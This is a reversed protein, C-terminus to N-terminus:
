VEYVPKELDEPLLVDFAQPNNELVSFVTKLSNPILQRNDKCLDKNFELHQDQALHMFCVSCLRSISCDSCYKRRIDLYEKNLRNVKNMDLKENVNGISCMQSVKECVFFDGEPSVAIKSGPTCALKNKPMRGRSRWIINILGMFLYLVGVSSVSNDKTIKEIFDKQLINVTKEFTDPEETIIGQEHARDCYDYYTTNYKGIQNYIISYPYFIKDNQNFFEVIKCMDTYTDFCCSFSIGKVINRKKKEEQLRYVKDLVLDFTGKGNPFIRNRDNNSKFGDLSFTIVFDNVIFFDIMEDKLLTGNTTIFYQANYNKEKCYEVVQKILKYQLLPEGGYFTITPGRRFGNEERKKHLEMYYDVAKRAISFSMKKKSYGKVHPYNDSYICYKCRINCDETVILILQSLQVKLEDHESIETYNSDEENKVFYGQLMMKKIKQYLMNAQIHSKGYSEELKRILNKENMKLVNQITYYEAEDCPFVMGSANDFLYTNGSETTFKYVDINKQEM